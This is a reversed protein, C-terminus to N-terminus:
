FPLLLLKVVKGALPPAQNKAASSALLTPVQPTPQKGKEMALRFSSDLSMHIRKRSDSGMSLVVPEPINQKTVTDIGQNAENWEKRGVTEADVENESSSRSSRFLM